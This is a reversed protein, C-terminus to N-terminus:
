NNENKFEEDIFKRLWYYSRSDITNEDFNNSFPRYAYKKVVEYM